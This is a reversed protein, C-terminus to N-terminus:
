CTSAAASTTAFRPEDRCKFHKGIPITPPRSPGTQPSEGPDAPSDFDDALVIKDNRHAGAVRCDLFDHIAVTKRRAIVFDSVTTM